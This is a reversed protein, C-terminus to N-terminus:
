KGADEKAVADRFASSKLVASNPQPFDIRVTIHTSRGDRISRIEYSYIDPNSQVTDRNQLRLSHSHQPVNRLPSWFFWIQQTPLLFLVLTFYWQPTAPPAPSVEQQFLQRSFSGLWFELKGKVSPFYEPHCDESWRCTQPLGAHSLFVASGLAGEYSPWM